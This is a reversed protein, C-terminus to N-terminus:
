GSPKGDIAAFASFIGVFLDDVKWAGGELKLSVVYPFAHGEYTVDVTVYATADDLLTVGTVAFTVPEEAEPQKPPPAPRRTVKTPIGRGANVVKATTFGHATLRFITGSDSEAYLVLTRGLTKRDVVVHLRHKGRAASPRTGISFRLMPELTRLERLLKTLPVQKTVYAGRALGLARADDFVERLVIEEVRDQFGREARIAKASSDAEDEVSREEEDDSFFETCKQPGGVLALTRATLMGCATNVDKASLAALFRESAARADDPPAALAAAAMCVAAVVAVLVVLLRSVM